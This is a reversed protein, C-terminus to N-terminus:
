LLQFYQVLLKTFLQRPSDQWVRKQGGLIRLMFAGGRMLLVAARRNAM